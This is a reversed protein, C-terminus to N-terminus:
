ADANKRVAKTEEESSKTNEAVHKNAFEDLGTFSLDPKPPMFNGIYPPPVVNYNEYGLGKKYNEVI